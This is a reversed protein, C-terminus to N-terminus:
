IKGIRRCVSFGLDALQKAAAKTLVITTSNNRYIDEALDASRFPGFGALMLLNKINEEDEDSSINYTYTPESMKKRRQTHCQANAFHAISV